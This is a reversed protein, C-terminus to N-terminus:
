GVRGAKGFVGSPKFILVAILFIISYADRIHPSFYASGFSETIGVFLGAALAGNISGMGAMVVIIFAKLVLFDGMTPYVQSIPALLGGAVASLGSGVAMTLMAIKRPSIGVVLAGFPNQGAARIAHGLRTKTLFVNLGMVALLVGAIIILRQYTVRAGMIEVAGSVPPEVVMPNPGFTLLAIGQLILLLGFAAIFLTAHPKDRLPEFVLYQVIAGLGMGVLVSMALATFYSFENSTLYALAYASIMAHAGFAFQPIELVGFVLALSVAVLGYVCGAMLGNALIQAFDHM